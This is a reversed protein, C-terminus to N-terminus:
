KVSVDNLVTSFYYHMQVDRERDYILRYKMWFDRLVPSTKFDRSYEINSHNVVKDIFYENRIDAWRNSFLPVNHDKVLDVLEDVQWMNDRFRIYMEISSDTIVEPKFLTALNNEDQYTLEVFGSSQNPTYFVGKNFTDEFDEGQQVSDVIPYTRTLWNAAHIINQIGNNFRFLGEMIFPHRKGYFTRPLGKNHEWLSGNHFSFYRKNFGSYFTPVFSAWGVWKNTLPSYIFTWSRDEFVDKNQLSAPSGNFLLKGDVVTFLGAISKDILAYDRKTLIWIKNLSDFTSAYGIGDPNAPNDINSFGPIDNPLVLPLNELFWVDADNASIDSLQSGLQFVFGRISDIMFAGFPTNDFAWQARSGSYGGSAKALPAPASEFLKGSGLTIKNGEVPIQVYKTDAYMGHEFRFLVKNAGLDQIDWMAGMDRRFDYYNLPRFVLLNNFRNEPSNTLSFITRTDFHLSEPEAANFFPNPGQYGYLDNPESYAPNQEFANDQNVYEVGTWKAATLFGDKLNPYFTNWPEAGNLRLDINVDSECFFLPIGTVIAPLKGIEGTKACESNVGDIRAPNRRTSSEYLYRQGYITQTNKLDVGAENDNWTMYTQLNQFFSLQRKISFIGIFCDGGFVITNNRVNFNDYNTYVFSRSFISGYQNAIKNIISAYYSSAKVRVASKVFFCNYEPDSLHVRSNDPATPNAIDKNTNLLVTSNRTLNHVPRAVEGGSVQSNFPIYMAEKLRRRVNGFRAPHWNNYYAISLTQYVVDDGDSGKVKLLPYPELNHLTNVATGYQENHIILEGNLLMTKNFSTDPSTFSFVDKRYRDQLTQNNTIPPETGIPKKHIWYDGFLDNHPYNQYLRIDDDYATPTIFGGFFSQAEEDRWNQEWMNHILGSAIISKNGRRNARVIEWGTMKKKVEAPLSAMVEEINLFSIGLKYVNVKTM